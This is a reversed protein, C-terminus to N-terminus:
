RRRGRAMATNYANLPYEERGYRANQANPLLQQALPDNAALPTLANVANTYAIVTDPYKMATAATQGQTMGGAYNKLQQVYAINPHAPLIQCAANLLDFAAANQQQQLKPIAQAVNADFLARNVLYANLLNQANQWGQTALVDGPVVALADSYASIAAPYNTVMMAVAARTMAQTYLTARNIAQQANALAAQAMQDDPFLNTAQLYANVADAFQNNALAQNGQNMAIQFQTKLQMGLAQADTVGKSATGDDPYLALPKSTSKSRKTPGSTKCCKAARPWSNPSNSRAITRIKCRPGPWNRGAQSAGDSERGADPNAPFVGQALVAKQYADAFNKATLMAQADTIYGTYDDLKKQDQAVQDALKKQEEANRALAETATTLGGKADTDDPAKQM